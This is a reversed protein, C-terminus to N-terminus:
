QAGALENAAAKDEPAAPARTPRPQRENEALAKKVASAQEDDVKLGPAPNEPDMAEFGTREGDLERAAAALEAVKPSSVMFVANNLFAHHEEYVAGIYAAADEDVHTIGFGGAVLSTNMGNLTIKEKNPGEVTLGHPLKCGILVKKPM